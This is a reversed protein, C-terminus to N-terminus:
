KLTTWRSGSISQDRLLTVRKLAPYEHCTKTGVNTLSSCLRSKDDNHSERYRNEELWQCCSESHERNIPKTDKLHAQQPPTPPSPNGDFHVLKSSNRCIPLEYKPSASELKEQNESVFTYPPLHLGKNELSNQQSSFPILLGPALQAAPIMVPKTARTRCNSSGM